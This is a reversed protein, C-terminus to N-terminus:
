DPCADPSSATLAPATAIAQRIGASVSGNGLQEARRITEADLWVQIRRGDRMTAPRGPKRPKDTM